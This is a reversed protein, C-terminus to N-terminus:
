RAQQFDERRQLALNSAKGDRKSLMWSYTTSLYILFIVSFFMWGASLHFRSVFDAFGHNGLVVFTAIRLANGLLMALLGAFYGLLLRDKRFRNWDLFAVFGFLYDFLELGTVGSCPWTITVDQQPGTITPTLDGLYGLGRVFPWALIQVFRGLVQGYWPWLMQLSRSPFFTLLVVIVAKSEPGYLHVLEKWLALPMLFVTPALVSLKGAAILAGGVSPTGAIPEFVGSLQRAVLVIALHSAIFAALRLKSFALKSNDESHTLVVRGRRWVLLLCAGVAWLPSVTRLAAAAFQDAAVASFTLVLALL